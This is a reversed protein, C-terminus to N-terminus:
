KANEPWDKIGAAAVDKMAQAIPIRVVGHARDVWGYSGLEHEQQARYAALDAAPNIELRPKATEIRPADSPGHRSSPYILAIAVISLALAAALGGFLAAALSVSVDSREVAVEDNRIEDTMAGVGALHRARGIAVLALALAAALAAALRSRTTM